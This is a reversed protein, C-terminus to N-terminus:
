TPTALSSFVKTWDSDPYPGIRAIGNTALKPLPRIYKESEKPYGSEGGFSMAEVVQTAGFKPVIGSAHQMLIYESWDEDVLSILTIQVERRQQAPTQTVEMGAFLWFGREAGQWDAKNVTGMANGILKTEAGDLYTPKKNFTGSLVAMLAPKRITLSVAQERIVNNPNAPDEWGLTLLKGDNVHPLRYRQVDIFTKREFVKYLTNIEGAANAFYPREFDWTVIFNPGGTSQARVELCACTAIDSGPFPNGEGIGALQVAKNKAQLNATFIDGVLSTTPTFDQLIAVVRATKPGMIDSSCFSGERVLKLTAAM